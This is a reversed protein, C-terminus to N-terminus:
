ITVRQDFEAVVSGYASLFRDFWRDNALAASPYDLLLRGVSLGSRAANPVALQNLIGTYASVAKTGNHAIRNRVKHAWVLRDITAQPLLTDFRGFFGVKGFLTNAREKLTAPIAWGMTGSLGRDVSGMISDARTPGVEFRKRVEIRFAECCFHEYQAAVEFFIFSAADRRDVNLLRTFGGGNQTAGSLCIRQHLTRARSIAENTQRVLDNKVGVTLAM